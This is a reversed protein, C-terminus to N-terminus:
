YEATQLRRFLKKQEMEFKSSLLQLGGLKSNLVFEFNAIISNVILSIESINFDRFIFFFGGPVIQNTMM